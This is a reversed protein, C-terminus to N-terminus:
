QRLLFQALGVLGQELREWATMLALPLAFTGDPLTNIELSELNFSLRGFIPGTWSPNLPLFAFYPYFDPLWHPHRLLDYRVFNPPETQYPPIPRVLSPVNPSSWVGVESDYFVTTTVARTNSTSLM